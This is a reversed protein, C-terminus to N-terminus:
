GLLLGAPKKSAPAPAAPRPAAAPAGADDDDLRTAQDILRAARSGAGAFASLGCRPCKVNRVGSASHSVAAEGGCAPALCPISGRHAM